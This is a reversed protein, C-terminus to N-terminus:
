PLHQQIYAHATTRNLTHGHMYHTTPHPTGLTATIDTLLRKVDPNHTDPAGRLADAAGLLTAATTPDGHHLTLRAAAVTALAVVPMDPISSALHFSKKTHHAARQPDGEALAQHALAADLVAHLLLPAAPLRKLDEQAARYHHAAENLDGTTRNLHGLAIRAFLLQRPATTTGPQLMHRLETRAQETDGRKARATALAARQPIAEDHPNLERLLAIAQTLEDIVADFDGLVADAEALATLAVSPGWREGSIRYATASRALDERMGTMDGHNGRLFARMLLLTARAWPTCEPLDRDIARTGATADDTTLALAAEILARAPHAQHDPVHQAIWRAQELGLDTTAAGGALVRNFLHLATATAREPLPTDGPIRLAQWIRQAADAHNGQLTWLWGLAAALRVADAANETTTLHHLAALLNAHEETLRAIWPLQDPGRLPHAAQEALHVFYSAHHARAHQLEGTETLQQLAYERITELMRYRAHPGEIVQLLSKDVLASIHDLPAETAMGGLACVGEASELTIVQPFVALRAALWQEDPTLLNWSWGVVADLTRHQPLATRNGSNLLRFRDALRRTLEELPLTRLRAAALEIALPLGDLRRCVEIVAAVNDDHITFDPRVATIRDAFLQVAPHTLAQTANTGPEPLGLPRLPFLSEGPVDLPERSTVLMRLRPCRGLLEHTFSAAEPLLHECNDLVLVADAASLTEVVRELPDTPRHADHSTQSRLALADTVAPVLDRGDTVPALEVLWAGGAVTDRLNSAVSTALRTKGVGGPGVLTVLRGRTLLATVQATEEARGILSDLSARVNGVPRTVPASRPTLTGQLVALHADRLDPGPDTGLEEALMLRYEEFAALAEAQRGGAHLTRVLLVRLPERLPFRTILAQLEPVTHGLDGAFDLEATIRHETASIRIEDLRAAAEAAFPANTLGSLADGRWLGLAERLTAEANRADGERLLRRGRVTLREFRLADVDDAPIDLRYGGAVSRLPAPGGLARRLRSVLSQLAHARDAPGGDPWLATSLTEVAVVRGASLALRVLLTRLRTGGINVPRDDVAVRLPGLIDIRM